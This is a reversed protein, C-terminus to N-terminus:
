FLTHPGFILRTFPQDLLFLLYHSLRSNTSLSQTNKFFSKVQTNNVAVHFHPGGSTAM